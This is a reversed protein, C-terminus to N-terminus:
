SVLASWSGPDRPHGFGETIWHCCKEIGAIKREQERGRRELLSIRRELEAFTARLEANERRASEKQRRAKELQAAREEQKQQGVNIIHRCYTQLKQVLFTQDSLDSVINDREWQPDALKCELNKNEDELDENQKLFSVCAYCPISGIKNRYTMIANLTNLRWTTYLFSPLSVFFISNLM